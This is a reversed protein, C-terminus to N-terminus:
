PQIIQVARLFGLFMVAVLLALMLNGARQHIGKMKANSSKEERQEVIRKGTRTMYFTLLALTIGLWGHLSFLDSVEADLNVYRHIDAFIALLIVGLIAPLAWRGQREHEAIIEKRNRNRIRSWAGGRKLRIAKITSWHRYLWFGFVTAVLPHLLLIVFDVAEM